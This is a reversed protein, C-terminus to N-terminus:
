IVPLWNLTMNSAKYTSAKPKNLFHNTLFSTVFRKSRCTRVVDHAISATIRAKRLEHWLRKNLRSKKELKLIQSLKVANIKNLLITAIREKCYDHDRLYGIM